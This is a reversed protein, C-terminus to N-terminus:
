VLYILVEQWHIRCLTRCLHRSAALSSSCSSTHLPLVPICTRGKGRISVLSFQMSLIPHQFEPPLQGNTIYEKEECTMRNEKKM